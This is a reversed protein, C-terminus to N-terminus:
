ILRNQIRKSRRLIVEDQIQDQLDDYDFLECYDVREKKALRGSRRVLESEDESYDEDYEIYYKRPNMAIRQSRRIEEGYNDYSYNIRTKILLRESRRTVEDKTNGKRFVKFM